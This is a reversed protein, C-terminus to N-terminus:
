KKLILWLGAILAVAIGGYILYTTVPTATTAAPIVTYPSAPNPSTGSGVATTAVASPSVTPSSSQSVPGASSNGFIIAADDYFPAGAQAGSAASASVGIDM